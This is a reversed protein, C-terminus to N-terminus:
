VSDANWITRHVMTWLLASSLAYPAMQYAITTIQRSVLTTESGKLAVMAVMLMGFRVGLRSVAAIYQVKHCEM